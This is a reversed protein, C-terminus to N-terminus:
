PLGRITYCLQLYFGEIGSFTEPTKGTPIGLMDAHDMSELVGMFNWVGPAPNGDYDVITDGSGIFPGIMSITNVVGDNELWAPEDVLEAVAALSGMYLGGPVFISLMSIEPVKNRGFPGNATKENGWSFYYVEPDAEVMANLHSAGSISVDWLALDTYEETWLPLARVRAFYDGLPENEGRVVGWQELDLDFAPLIGTETMAALSAATTKLLGDILEPNNVFTTGNHPTALTTV